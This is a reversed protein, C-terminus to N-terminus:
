QGTPAEYTIEVMQHGRLKPVTFTVTGDAQEFAIDENEPVLQVAAVPNDVAVTVDTDPLTVLDQIPEVNRDRLNGRLVPTAYLLHVIDRNEHAQRRVTARGATPLSTRIMKDRGLAFRIAASAVELMAVAGVRRYATFIPAALYTFAGKQVGAAYGNPDPRSPANIHGSFHRATRDLYPEYVEGLSTGDTVSIQETPVYLFLPDDVGEARLPAIPLMYDGGAMASTGAWTAGVDWIFGDDGIGSKGTLLVKGGEAVYADIKSKLEEDVAVSDPLILLAYGSFDSELDLVDFTFQGELLVRTAGEDVPEEARIRQGVQPRLSASESLLAIEARNTSGVAWAEREEVWAYAPAIVRMTSPDIAGTPHLHDGVCCHAGHALMAGCEYLLADPKKYGGIEGWLWHFKGTMGLYDLGTPEAYRASLPFHDYGWGGTPLSEIELHTYHDYYHQRMGRKIHGTNFFLPCNPDNKKVTDTVADFFKETAMSTFRAQDGPNTWDLGDAEMQDRANASVSLPQWCIDIWMGDGRSYAKMAEDIQRCLYDLYPTSFDMFAWGAGNASAFYRPLTGDPAVIRWEPHTHAAYEDWAASVYIPTKIGVAQLAEIQQGLLDIELHPHPAGVKTPHYSYGHHCKSFLNVSDIHADKFAKAFAPGDFRSGIGPILGSTHFDLHIQRFRM